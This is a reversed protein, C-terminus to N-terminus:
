GLASLCPSVFFRSRSPARLFWKVEAAGPGIIVKHACKRCGLVDVCQGFAPVIHFDGEVDGLGICSAVCGGHACVLIAVGDVNAPYHKM